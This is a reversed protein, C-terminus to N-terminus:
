KFNPGSVWCVLSYREGKTVPKVEHLIYSPFFVCTGQTKNMVEPKEQTHLLLDGGEYKKPDDLQVSLSLKRIKNNLFKDIHKVYFSNKKYLTLQFGEELGYLDFKFFKNNVFNILDTMKRFLWETESNPYIFHVKSDRIQKKIELSGTGVVTAKQLRKKGFNKILECEEKSFVKEAFAWNNVIDVNFPWSTNM